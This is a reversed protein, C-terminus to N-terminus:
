PSRWYEDNGIRCRLASEAGERWDGGGPLELAEGCKPSKIEM